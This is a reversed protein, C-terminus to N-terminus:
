QSPPNRHSHLWGHATLVANTPLRNPLQARLTLFGREALLVVTVHPLRWDPVGKATLTCKPYTWTRGRYRIIEGRGREAIIALAQQTGGKIPM